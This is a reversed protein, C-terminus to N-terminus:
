ASSPDESLHLSPQDCLQAEGLWALLLTLYHLM